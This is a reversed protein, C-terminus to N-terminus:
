LIFDRCPNKKINEEHLKSYMTTYIINEDQSIKTALLNSDESNKFQEKLQEKLKTKYQYLNPNKDFIIKQRMKAKIYLNATAELEGESVATKNSRQAEYINRIISDFDAEVLEKGSYNASVTYKKKGLIAIGEFTERKFFDDPLYSQLLALYHDQEEKYIKINKKLDSINPILQNLSLDTSEELEKLKKQLIEYDNQRSCFLKQSLAVAMLSDPLKNSIAGNNLPRLSFLYPFLGSYLDRNLSIGEPTSIMPFSSYDKQNPVTELFVDELSKGTKMKEIFDEPFLTNGYLNPGSSSVVCTNENALALTNGSHCSFDVIGLKIGKDRALITLRKLDDLSALTTGKLDSLNIDSHPNGIAVSHTIEKYNEAGHTNVMVLLQDGAKLQGNMIQKEYDTITKKWTQTTLPAKNVTPKFKNSLINDTNSHGGNYNISVKDWTNKNLYNSLLSLSKDFITTAGDPEGGAGMMVLHREAMAPNFIFLIM